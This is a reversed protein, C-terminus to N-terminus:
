VDNKYQSHWTSEEKKPHPWESMDRSLSTCTRSVGDDKRWNWVPMCDNCRLCFRRLLRYRCSLETAVMSHKDSVLCDHCLKTQWTDTTNTKHDFDNWIHLMKVAPAEGHSRACLIFIALSVKLWAKNSHWCIGSHVALMSHAMWPLYNMERTDCPCLSITCWPHAFPEKWEQLLNQCLSFCTYAVMRMSKSMVFFMYAVMRMSKSMIFFTYIGGNEDVGFLTMFVFSADDDVGLVGLKM